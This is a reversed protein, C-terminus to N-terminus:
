KIILIYTSGIVPQEFPCMRTRYKKAVTSQLYESNFSNYANNVDIWFSALIGYLVNFFMNGVISVESFPLYLYRIRITQWPYM